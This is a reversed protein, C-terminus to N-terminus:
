RMERWHIKLAKKALKDGKSALETVFVIADWDTRFRQMEDIREIERVGRSDSYVIDWGQEMAKKDDEATWEIQTPVATKNEEFKDLAGNYNDDPYFHFEEKKGGWYCCEGGLLEGAMKSLDDFDAGQITEILINELEPLPVIITM